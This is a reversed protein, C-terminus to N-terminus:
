LQIGNFVTLQAVRVRQQLYGENWRSEGQLSPESSSRSVQRWSEPDSWLIVLKYRTAMKKRSM